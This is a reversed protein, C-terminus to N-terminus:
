NLIQDDGNNVSVNPVEPFLGHHLPDDEHIAPAFDELHPPDVPLWPVDQQHRVAGM